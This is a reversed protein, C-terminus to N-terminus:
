KAVVDIGSIRWAASIARLPCDTPLSTVRVRMTREFPRGAPSRRPNRRRVNGKAITKQEGQTSTPGPVVSVRVSNPIASPWGGYEPTCTVGAHQIRAYQGVDLM